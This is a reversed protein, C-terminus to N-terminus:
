DCRSKIASPSFATLIKGSSTRLSCRQLLLPAPDTAPLCPALPVCPKIVFDRYGRLLACLLSGSGQCLRHLEAPAGEGAVAARRQATLFGPSPPPLFRPAPLTKWWPRRSPSPAPLLPPTAPPSPLRRRRCAPLAPSRAPRRAPRRPFPCVGPCAEACGGAVHRRRARGKRKRPLCRRREPGPTRRRGTGPHRRRRRRAARPGRRRQPALHVAAALVAVEGAGELGNVLTLSSRGRRARGPRRM